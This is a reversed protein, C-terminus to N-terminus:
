VRLTCRNNCPSNGACLSAKPLGGGPLLLRTPMLGLHQQEVAPAPVVAGSVIMGDNIACTLKKKKQFLHRLQTAQLKSVVYM